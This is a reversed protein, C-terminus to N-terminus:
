AIRKLTVEAIGGGSAEIRWRVEDKTLSIIAQRIETGTWNPFISGEFKLVVAGGGVSYTGFGAVSGQVVARNEEPTGELRNNSAFKPVEPSTFVYIFRGDADFVYLGNPKPGFADFRRGDDRTVIASVLRYTGALDRAVVERDM